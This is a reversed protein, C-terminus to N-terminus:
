IECQLRHSAQSINASKHYCSVSVSCTESLEHAQASELATRFCSTQVSLKSFHLFGLVNHGRTVYSNLLTGNLIARLSSGDKKNWKCYASNGSFLLERIRNMTIKM